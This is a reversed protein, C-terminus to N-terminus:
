VQLKAEWDASSNWTDSSATGAPMTVGLETSGLECEGDAKTPHDLDSGNTTDIMTDRM